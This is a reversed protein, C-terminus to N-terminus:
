GMSHSTSRQPSSGAAFGGGGLEDGHDVARAGHIGAREFVGAHDFAQGREENGEVHALLGFCAPTRM